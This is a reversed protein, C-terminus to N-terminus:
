QYKNRREATIQRAEPQCQDSQICVRNTSMQDFPELIGRDHSVFAGAFDEGDVPNPELFSEMTAIAVAVSHSRLRPGEEKQLFNM